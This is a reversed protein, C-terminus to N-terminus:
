NKTNNEGVMKKYRKICGRIGVNESFGTSPIYVKGTYSWFSMIVNKGWYLNFHGNSVNCLKFPIKNEFFQKRAYDLRDNFCRERKEQSKQKLIPSVDKWYDSLTENDM